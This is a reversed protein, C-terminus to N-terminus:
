KCSDRDEICYEWLMITGIMEIRHLIGMAYYYLSGLADRDEICYEWLMITGLMEIMHLIGIAVGLM